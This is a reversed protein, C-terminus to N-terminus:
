AGIAPAGQISWGTFGIFTLITLVGLALWHAWARSSLAGVVFAATMAVNAPLYFTLIFKLSMEGRSNALLLAVSMVLAAALLAYVYRREQFYFVRLDLGQAPVEDPLVASAALFILSLPVIEAVLAWYSIAALDVHRWLEFFLTLLSMFVFLALVLPLPHWRVRARARLLRHLSVLMDGVALAVIITIFASLYEFLTGPLAMM